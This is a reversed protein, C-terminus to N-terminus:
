VGAVGVLKPFIHSKLMETTSIFLRSTPLSNAPRQINPVTRIDSCISYLSNATGKFWTSQYWSSWKIVSGSPNMYQTQCLRLWFIRNEPSWYKTRRTIEFSAYLKESSLWFRTKRWTFKPERRRKGIKWGSRETRRYSCLRYKLQTVNDNLNHTNAFFNGSNEQRSRCAGGEMGEEGETKGASSLTWIWIM